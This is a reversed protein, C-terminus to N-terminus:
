KGSEMNSCSVVEDDPEMSFREPVAWVIKVQHGDLMVYGPSSQMKANLASMHDPFDIFGFGRNLRGDTQMILNSINPFIALLMNKIENYSKERPLNGVFLRCKNFSRRVDLFSGNELIFHKMVEAARLAAIESSFRIYGYGRNIHDYDMMLRFEYIDGYRGFHTMLARDFGPIDRPIDRIFLECTADPVVGNWTLPPGFRRGLFYLSKEYFQLYLGSKWM